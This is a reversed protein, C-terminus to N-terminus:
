AIKQVNEEEVILKRFVDGIAQTRDAQFAKTSTVTSNTAWETRLGEADQLMCGVSHKSKVRYATNSAVYWAAVLPSESAGIRKVFSAIQSNVTANRVPEVGYRACYATSYSAWTQANASLGAPTASVTKVKPPKNTLPEQNITIPKHNNTLKGTPEKESGLIVPDTKKPRGGLKGNERATEAKDQYAGIEVECRKHKWGDPTSQFFESLVQVVASKEEETRASLRRLVLETEAPICSESLYYMDLLQRYVGHELLSLHATDRRYDGIHHSYYNM